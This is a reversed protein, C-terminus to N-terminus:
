DFSYEMQIDGENAPEPDQKTNETTMIASSTSPTNPFPDHSVPITSTCVTKSDNKFMDRLYAWKVSSAKKRTFLLGEPVPVARMLLLIIQHCILPIKSYKTDRFIPLLGFGTPIHQVM